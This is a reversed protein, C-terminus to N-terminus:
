NPDHEFGPAAVKANAWEFHLFGDRTNPLRSGHGLTGFVVIHATVRKTDPEYLWNGQEDRPAQGAWALARRNKAILQGNKFVDAFGWVSVYARLRPFLGPGGIGTDGFMDHNILVGGLTPRHHDWPILRTMRILYEAN